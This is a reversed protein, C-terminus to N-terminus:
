AAPGYVEGQCEVTHGQDAMSRAAARQIRKHECTPCELEDDPSWALEGRPWEKGCYACDDEYDPTYPQSEDYRAM